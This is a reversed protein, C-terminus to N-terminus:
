FFYCFIGAFCLFSDSFIAITTFTRIKSFADKSNRAPVFSLTLSLGIGIIFSVMILYITALGQTLFTVHLLDKLPPDDLKTHFYDGIAFDDKSFTGSTFPIIYGLLFTDLALIINNL